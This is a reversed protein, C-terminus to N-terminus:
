TAPVKACAELAIVACQRYRDLKIAGTYYPRIAYARLGEIDGAEAM